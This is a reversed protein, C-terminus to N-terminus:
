YNDVKTNLFNSRIVNDITIGYYTRKYLLLYIIFLQAAEEGNSNGIKLDVDSWGATRYVYYITLYSLIGCRELIKANSPALSFIYVVLM